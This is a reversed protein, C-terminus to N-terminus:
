FSMSYFKYIEWDFYRKLISNLVEIQVCCLVESQCRNLHTIQGEGTASSPGWPSSRRPPHILSMCDSFHTISWVPNGSIRVRVTAWWTLDSWIRWLTMRYCFLVVYYWSNSHSPGMRYCFLVVYYWSNSHSLDWDTVPRFWITDLTQSVVCLKM